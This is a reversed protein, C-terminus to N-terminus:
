FYKTEQHVLNNLLELDVYEPDVQQGRGGHQDVSYNSLKFDSSDIFHYLKPRQAFGTGMLLWVGIILWIRM